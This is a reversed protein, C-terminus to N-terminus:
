FLIVFSVFTFSSLRMELIEFSFIIWFESWFFFCLLKSWLHLLQGLSFASVFNLWFEVVSLESMTKMMVTLPQTSLM